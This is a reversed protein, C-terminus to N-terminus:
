DWSILRTTPFYHELIQEYTQEQQAYVLAGQLSLGVGHGQGYSIFVFGAGDYEIEFAPSQLVPEQMQTLVHQWFTYGSIEEDGVLLSEVYGSEDKSLVSLWTDATGYAYLNIGLADGVADALEEESLSSIQRWGELTQDYPSPTQALYSRTDGWINEPSNTGFAAMNYFPTFAPSAGDESLIFSEVELVANLIEESPPKGVVQPADISAGQMNLIWSHASIALAQIAARDLNPAENQCIMALIDATPATMVEGNMTVTLYNPNPRQPLPTVAAPPATVEPLSSVPPLSSAIDSTDSTASTDIADSSSSSSQASGSQSTNSSSASTDSTTSSSASSSSQASSYLATFSASNQSSSFTIEGSLPLTAASSFVDDQSVTPANDEAPMGASLQLQSNTVDGVLYRRLWTSYLLEENPADENMREYYATPMLPSGAIVSGSVEGALEDEHALRGCLYLTEGENQTPLALSMFSDGPSINLSIDYLSRVKAGIMFDMFADYSSVDFVTPEFSNQADDLFVAFVLYTRVDKDTFWTFSEPLPENQVDLYSTIPEFEADAAILINQSAQGPTATESIIPMGDVDAQTSLQLIEEQVAGEPRLVLTEASGDSLAVMGGIQADQSAAYDVLACAATNYEATGYRLGQASPYNIDSTPSAIDPQSSGSNLGLMLLALLLLVAIIALMARAFGGGRRKPRGAREFDALQGKTFHKTDPIVLGMSARRVMDLAHNTASTRVYDRKSMYIYPKRVYVHRGHALAIYVLGVPKQASGGGPGAIGTIGIGYTAGARAAAGFAMEAAVQGSVAGYKRLTSNRVNLMEHKAENAYTVAGYGFVGSSGPVSTIRESLLGGTCSEATALAQGQALLRHVVAMELSDGNDSYIVEGLVTHFQAALEDCMVDAQEATPASATIRIHVEGTKAYLAATPNAGALLPRIMEELESEGIGFTRLTVSRISSDQLAELLPVVQNEFMPMMERPPGPLLVAYKTGQRFWAGPATGNPNDLKIGKTPVMAQKANSPSMTKGRKKFFDELKILEDEDPTLVDGFLEAITEKTLDDDTPGLGGTFVLLDSRSKAESALRRLRLANDGVVTQYYVSFGLSALKQSLYQANTNLIDGLLLETGVSIIEARM